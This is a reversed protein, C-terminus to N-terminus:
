TSMTLSWNAKSNTLYHKVQLHFELIIIPVAGNHRVNGVRYSNLILKAVTVLIDM